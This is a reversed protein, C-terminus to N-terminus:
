MKEALLSYENIILYFTFYLFTLIKVSRTLFNSEDAISTYGTKLFILQDIRDRESLTSKKEYNDM